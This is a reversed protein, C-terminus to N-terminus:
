LAPRRRATAVTALWSLGLAGELGLIAGTLLVYGEGHGGNGPTPVSTLALLGFAVAGVCLIGFAGGLAGGLRDRRMTALLAAAALAGSGAAVTSWLGISSPDRNPLVSIIVAVLWGTMGVVVITTARLLARLLDAM